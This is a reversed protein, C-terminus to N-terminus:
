NQKMLAVKEQTVILRDKIDNQKESLDRVSGVIKNDLHGTESQCIARNLDKETM